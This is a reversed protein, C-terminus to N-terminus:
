ENSVIEPKFVLQALRVVVENKSDSKKQWEGVMLLLRDVFLDDMAETYADRLKQYTGWIISISEDWPDGVLSYSAVIHEGIRYGVIPHTTAMRYRGTDLIEERIGDKIQELYEKVEAVRTPHNNGYTLVAVKNTIISLMGICVGSHSRSSGVMEFMKEIISRFTDDHTGSSHNMIFPKSHFFSNGSVIHGKLSFTLFHNVKTM